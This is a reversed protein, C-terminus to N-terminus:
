AEDVPGRAVDIEAKLELIDLFKGEDKSESTGTVSQNRQRKLGDEVEEIRDDVYQMQM